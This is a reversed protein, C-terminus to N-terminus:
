VRREITRRLKEVLQSVTFPRMLHDTAGLAVTRTADIQASHTLIATAASIGSEHLVELIEFGGDLDFDLLIAAANLRDEATTLRAGAQQGDTLVVCRYGVTELAHRLLEALQPDHEVIAVDTRQSSQAPHTNAPIVRGRGASKAAMLAATASRLLEAFGIGDRNHEAVGASAGINVLIGGGVDVGHDHFATLVEELRQVANERPAGYMAVCFEEGDMRAVIDEGRFEDLLHRALRRLVEDGATHGHLDNVRKFHDINIVAISLPTRYRDALLELRAMDTEMRRRNAVGTLADTEALMRHLQARDLRNRIRARLELAVVPKDLLDDAGAAYVAQIQDPSRSGGLFIVPLERWRSDSRVMRCLELANVHPVDLDLLLLHPQVQSLLNWFRQPERLTEVEVGDSDMIERVTGFLADDDHVMLVRGARQRVTELVNAVADAIAAPSDDADLLIRAGARLALMRGTTTPAPMLAVVATGGQQLESVRRLQPAGGDADDGLHVVAVAPPRGGSTDQSPLSDQGTVVATDVNRGRLCAAIAAAHSPEPHMVVVLPGSSQRPSASVGGSSSQPAIGPRALEARLEEAMAAAHAATSQEATDGALLGALGSALASLRQFGFAGASEALKRAEREAMARETEALRGSLWSAVAGDLTVLRRIASAHIRRWIADTAPTVGAQGPMLVPDASRAASGPADGVLPGGQRRYSEDFQPVQSMNSWSQPPTTVKTSMLIVLLPLRPAL